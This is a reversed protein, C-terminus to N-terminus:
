WPFKIGFFVAKNTNKKELHITINKGRAIIRRLLDLKKKDSRKRM